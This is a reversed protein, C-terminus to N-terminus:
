ECVECSSGGGMFTASGFRTDPEGNKTGSGDMWDPLPECLGIYASVFGRDGANIFGNGDVDFRCVSVADTQGIAASIFGRDAANVFGNGDIDAYCGTFSGPLHDAVNCVFPQCAAENAVISCGGSTCCAGGCTNEHVCGTGADCSDVTCEDADDCTLPSGAVCQGADSCTEVGDCADDDDCTPAVAVYLNINDIFWDDQDIEFSEKLRFRLRFNAHYATEPFYDILRHAFVLNSSPLAAFQIDIITWLGESDFFEVWLNDGSEPADGGGQKQWYYELTLSGLELASTDIVASTLSDGSVSNGALNLSYPVSPEANGFLSAEPGIVATWKTADITTSTFNDVLPLTTTATQDGLLPSLCQVSDRFAEIEPITHAPHFRNAGTIAEYMTYWTSPQGAVFCPCHDAGWNHGLEHASLDTTHAWSPMFNFNNSHLPYDSEVVSYGVGTFVSSCVSSDHAGGIFPALLDRGAIMHAIDRPIGQHFSQWQTKFQSLLTGASFTTYPADTTRLFIAVIVM